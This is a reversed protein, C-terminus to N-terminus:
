FTIAFVSELQNRRFENPATEGNRYHAPGWHTFRLGPEFALGRWQAKVGVGATVGATSLWAGLEQPLRFSPGAEAYPQVPGRVGFRYKALLPFQWLVASKGEYSGPLLFTVGDGPIPTYSDRFRIQRYTAESVISWRDNLMAEVHPGVFWSRFYSRGYGNWLSDRAPANLMMGGAVGIRVRNGFPKRDSWAGHSVALLIELQDQKAQLGGHRDGAWRTYRLTPAVEFGALHFGVGAGASFGYHSPNTNLNGTTRLSPGAEVFPAIRGANWRYKALIPFEWTV